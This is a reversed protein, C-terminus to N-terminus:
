LRGQKFLGYMNVFVSIVRSMLRTGPGTGVDVNYWWITGQVLQVIVTDM